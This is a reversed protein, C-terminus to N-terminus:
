SGIAHAREVLGRAETSLSVARVSDFGREALRAADAAEPYRGLAALCRASALQTLAVDFV